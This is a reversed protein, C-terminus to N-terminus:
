NKQILREMTQYLLDIDIPKSVYADAGAAICKEADGMMAKATVAIIKLDKTEPNERIHGIAEFGNMVPMMIDMLVIDYDTDLKLQDLSEQGNNAITIKAGYPELISDMVFVNRMEDEVLLVKLGDLFQTSIKKSEKKDEESETSIEIGYESKLIQEDFIFDLHNENQLEVIVPSKKPPMYIKLPATKNKYLVHLAHAFDDFPMGNLDNDVILIAGFNNDKIIDLAMKYDSAFRVNFFHNQFAQYLSPFLKSDKGLIMCEQESVTNKNLIKDFTDELNQLNIPKINYSEAGMTIGLKSKDVVSFIHVPITCLEPDAKLEKLVQWGSMVPLQIDLLIAIPNFKKAFFLGTDGQSAVVSEFGKESAFDQLIKVFRQDDEIILIPQNSEEKKNPRLDGLKLNKEDVDFLQDDFSLQNKNNIDLPLRIQFISGKNLESEVAITGGLLAVLEKCISLGLGTGGFKRSTSGDAQQFAEFVLDLKEKDIGIGTDQVEMSIFGDQSEIKLTIQGQATTFKFANSLLNRLIQLVKIKDTEIFAPFDQSIEISFNVEKERSLGDFMMEIDKKIELISVMDVTLEVRGAEIKALDLIDNILSLLDHGSNFIVSSYEVQKPTFNNEKNDKLIRALILISNLPTRLEHSMNALFESKYKNANKLEEIKKKLELTRALVQDELSANLDKLQKNVLFLERSKDEIIAEAQKRAERERKLIRKLTEINEM